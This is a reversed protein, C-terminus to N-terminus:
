GFIVDDVSNMNELISAITTRTIETSDYKIEADLLTNVNRHNREDISVTHVHKIDEIADHLDQVNGQYDIKFLETFNLKSEVNQINSKEQLESALQKRDTLHSDYTIEVDVFNTGQKLVTVNKAGTANRIEKILDTLDNDHTIEFQDTLDM